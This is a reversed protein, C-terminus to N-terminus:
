GNWSREGYSFSARAEDVGNEKGRDRVLGSGEGGGMLEGGRKESGRGGM